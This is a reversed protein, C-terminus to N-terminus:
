ASAARTAPCPTGFAPSPSTVYATSSKGPHVVQGRKGTWDGENILEVEAGIRPDGGQDGCTFGECRIEAVPRERMKGVPWVGHRVAYAASGLAIEEILGFVAYSGTRFVECRKYGEIGPLRKGGERNLFRYLDAKRIDSELASQTLLRPVSYRLSNM